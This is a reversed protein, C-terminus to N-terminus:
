RKRRAAQSRVEGYATRVGKSDRESDILGLAQLLLRADDADHAKGAVYLSAAHKQARTLRVDLEVPIMFRATTTPASM